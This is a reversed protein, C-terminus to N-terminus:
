PASWGGPGRGAARRVAVRQRVFLAKDQDYPSFFPKGLGLKWASMFLKSLKRWFALGM